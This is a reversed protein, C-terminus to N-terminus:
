LKLSAALGRVSVSYKWLEITHRCALRVECPKCESRCGFTLLAGGIEAEDARDLDDEYEGQEEM